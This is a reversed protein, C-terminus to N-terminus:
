AIKSVIDTLKMMFLVKSNELNELRIELEGYKEGEM